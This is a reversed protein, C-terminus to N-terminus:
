TTPNITPLWFLLCTYTILSSASKSGVPCFGWRWYQHYLVCCPLPSWSTISVTCVTYWTKCAGHVAPPPEPLAEEGTPGLTGLIPTGSDKPGAVELSQPSGGVGQWKRQTHWSTFFSPFCWALWHLFLVLKLPFLGLAAFLDCHDLGHCWMLIMSPVVCFWLYVLILEPGRFRNSRLNKLNM